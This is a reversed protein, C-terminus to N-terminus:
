EDIYVIDQPVYLAIEEKFKVRKVEDREQSGYTKKVLSGLKKLGRLRTCDSIEESWLKAMEVKTKDGNVEVFKTFNELTLLKIGM